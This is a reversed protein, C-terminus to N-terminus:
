GSTTRLVANAVYAYVVELQGRLVVRVSVRVYKVVKFQAARPVKNSLAYPVDGTRGCYGNLFVKLM